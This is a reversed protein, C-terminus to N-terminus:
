ITLVGTVMPISGPMGGLIIMWEGLNGEWSYGIQLQENSDPQYYAEIFFNGHRHPFYYGCALFPHWPDLATNQCVGINGHFEIPGTRSSALWLKHQPLIQDGYLTSITASIASNWVSSQHWHYTGGVLLSGHNLEEDWGSASAVRLEVKPTLAYHAQIQVQTYLSPDKDREIPFSLNSFEM